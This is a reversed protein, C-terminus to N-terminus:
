HSKVMYVMSSSGDMTMKRQEKGKISFAIEEVTIPEDKAMLNAMFTEWSPSISLVFITKQTVEDYSHGTRESERIFSKFERLHDSVITHDDMLCCMINRMRIITQAENPIDYKKKMSEMIDKVWIFNEYEKVFSDSMTEFIINMASQNKNHWTEYADKVFQLANIVPLDPPRSTLLPLLGDEHFVYGIKRRWESFNTENFREEKLLETLIARAAM